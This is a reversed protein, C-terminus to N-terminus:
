HCTEQKQTFFPSWVSSLSKKRRLNISMCIICVHSFCIRLSSILAMILILLVLAVCTVFDDSVSM